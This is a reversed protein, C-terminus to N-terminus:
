GNEHLGNVSFVRVFDAGAQRLQKQSKTAEIDETDTNTM